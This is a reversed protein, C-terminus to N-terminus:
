NKGQSLISQIEDSYLIMTDEQAPNIVINTQKLTELIDEGIAKIYEQHVGDLFLSMSEESLFVPIYSENEDKITVLKLESGNELSDDISDSEGLIYLEHHLIEYFFKSQLSEDHFANHFMEELKM